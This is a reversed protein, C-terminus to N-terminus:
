GLQKLYDLKGTLGFFDGGHYHSIRAPDFGSQEPGGAIGGTDNATTGNAFRDTLVFYFTQGAGPHTFRPISLAGPAEARGGIVGALLLIPLLRLFWSLPCNAFIRFMYHLPQRSVHPM